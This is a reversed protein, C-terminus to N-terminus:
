LSAIKVLIIPPLFREFQVGVSFTLFRPLVINRTTYTKSLGTKQGKKTQALIEGASMQKPNETCCSAIRKQLGRFSGLKQPKEIRVLIALFRSRQSRFCSSEPWSFRGYGNLLMYKIVHYIMYCIHSFM